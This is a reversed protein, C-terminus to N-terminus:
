AEGGRYIQMMEGSYEGNEDFAFLPPEFYVGKGGLKVAEVLVFSPPAGFRPHVMRMRKPELRHVCLTHVAEALRSAPYIVALAGRNRLLRFASACVDDMTCGEEERALRRGPHPSSPGSGSKRYPPNCLAYDFGGHGLVDPADKLDLAMIDIMDDMNALLVSRRAMDAMDERIEVGVVRAPDRRTCLLLPIVGTGTGLDIVTHGPRIRAFEALMVADTGFCFDDPKQLISLGLLELDDLREGPGILAQARMDFARM